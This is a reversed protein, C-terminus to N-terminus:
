AGENGFDFDPAADADHAGEFTVNSWGSFFEALLKPFDGAASDRASASTRIKCRSKGGRRRVIRKPRPSRTRRPLLPPPRSRCGCARRADANRDGNNRQSRKRDRRNCDRLPRYSSAVSGITSGRFKLLGAQAM